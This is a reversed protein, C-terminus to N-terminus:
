PPTHLKAAESQGGRRRGWSWEVPIPPHQERAGTSLGQQEGLLLLSSSLPDGFCLQTWTGARGDDEERCHQGGCKSGARQKKRARSGRGM